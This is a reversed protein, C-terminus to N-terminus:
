ERYRVIQRYLQLLVDANCRARLLWTLGASSSKFRKSGKPECDTASTRESCEM